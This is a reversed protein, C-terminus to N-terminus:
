PKVAHWLSGLPRSVVALFLVVVLLTLERGPGILAVAIACWALACTLAFLPYRLLARRRVHPTLPLARLAECAQVTAEAAGALAAGLWALVTALLLLGFAGAPSAGGPLLLMAVAVIQANGGRRWRLVAARHQWDFLHPMRADNLATLPLLPARRGDIRAPLAPRLSTAVGLLAGAATGAILVAVALGTPVPISAAWAAGALLVTCLTLVALAIGAGMAVLTQTVAWPPLPAAAWWGSRLEHALPRLRARIAIHVLLALSVGMALPWQAFLRLGSDALAARGGEGALAALPVSVAALGATWRAFSRVRDRRRCELRWQRWWPHRRAM